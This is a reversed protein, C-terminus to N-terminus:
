NVAIYVNKQLELECLNSFNIYHKYLVDQLNIYFMAGNFLEKLTILQHLSCNIKCKGQQLVIKNFDPKNSLDFLMSNINFSNLKKHLLYFETYRMEFNFGGFNGQLVKFKSSTKIYGAKTNFLTLM